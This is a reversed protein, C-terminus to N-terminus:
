QAVACGHDQRGAFQGFGHTEDFEVRGPLAEVVEGGRILVSHLAFM